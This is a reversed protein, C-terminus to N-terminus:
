EETYYVRTEIIAGGPIISHSKTVYKPKVTNSFDHISDTEEYILNRARRM